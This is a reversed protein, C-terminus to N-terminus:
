SSKFHLCPVSSSKECGSLLSEQIHCGVLIKIGRDTKEAIYSMEELRLKRILVNPVAIGSANHPSNILTSPTKSNMKFTYVFYSYVFAPWLSLEMSLTNSTYAQYGLGSEWFGPLSLILSGIGCLQGRVEECLNRACTDGM